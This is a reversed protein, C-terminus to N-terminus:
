QANTKQKNKKNTKKSINEKLKFFFFMEFIYYTITDEWWDKWKWLRKKNSKIM